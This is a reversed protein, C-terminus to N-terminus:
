KKGFIFEEPTGIKAIGYKQEAERQANYECIKDGSCSNFENVFEMFQEKQFASLELFTDIAVRVKTKDLRQNTM